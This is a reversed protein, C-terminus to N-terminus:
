LARTATVKVFGSREFTRGLATTIKNTVKYSKGAEGGSLWVISGTASFQTGDDIAIGDDASWESTAITDNDAGLERSWDMGFDLVEDDTKPKSQM